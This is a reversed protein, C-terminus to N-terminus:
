WGTDLLHQVVLATLVQAALGVRRWRRDLLACPVLLWPVFPLWIREVEAATMHSLDAALVMAWGVTGLVAVVRAPGALRSGGRVQVLRVPGAGAVPGANFVAGRSQGVDLIGPAPPLGGRGLLARPAGPVGRM